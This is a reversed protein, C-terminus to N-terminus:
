EGRAGSVTACRKHTLHPGLGQLRSVCGGGPVSAPLHRTRSAPARSGRAHPCLSWGTHPSHLPHLVPPTPHPPVAHHLSPAPPAPPPVRTRRGM